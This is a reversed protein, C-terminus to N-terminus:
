APPEDIPTASIVEPGDDTVLVLDEIRVGGLGELYIGPEITIAMGASITERGESRVGPREHVALGVGHGLGHGFANGMGGEAIIERAVADLDAAEIGPRAAEVAARQARHCLRYADLLESPPTGLIFTRTMDSCYGQWIAGMDVVLLTDDPIPVDSPVAHPRAGREAAAVIPAFSSGEGGAERIATEIAWAVDRETRGVFGEAAVPALADDVISAARWLLDFEAPEKTVRVDEVLERTAVLEHGELASAIRGHRTVSVHDSEFGIRSAPGLGAAVQSADVMLDRGGIIVEAGSVQERASVSYRSDTMVHSDDRAILVLANSGVYGTLYRINDLDTVLLADLNESALRDRLRAQREASM